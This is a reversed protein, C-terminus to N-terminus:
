KLIKRLTRLERESLWGEERLQELGEKVRGRLSKTRLINAKNGAEDIERKFVANKEMLLMFKNLLSPFAKTRSRILQSIKDKGLMGKLRISSSVPNVVVPPFPVYRKKSEAQFCALYFPVHVRICKRRKQNLGLKEFLLVTSERLKVLSDIKNIIETTLEELQEMEKNYIQIKADRSAEIEMLDKEIENIEAECQSRINFVEIKKESEKENIMKETEKFEAEIKALEEKNKRLEEKWKEEGVDDKNIQCTKIEAECQEIKNQLQQRKKEMKVRKQQLQYLQKEYEKSVRTIQVDYKQRIKEVKQKIVRKKKELEEDFKEQIEKVKNRLARIYDGTTTSLLKMTKCLTNIEETFLSKLCQLEKKIAAVEDEDITPSLVVMESPPSDIQTAESMFNNFENLFESNTILGDITKEVEGEPVRFYNLNDALFAMYTEKTKSSRELNELFVKVNPINKYTFTHFAFSLGDLLLATDGLPIIWFPYCVEAIFLLKEVPQKSFLGGGKKREKEALYFVAAKEMERTFPKKRKSSPVSFPVLFEMFNSQLIKVM